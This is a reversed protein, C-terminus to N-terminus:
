KRMLHVLEIGTPITKASALSKFGLMPQIRRKVSRHDQEIRNNLYQSARIRIPKLARRSPNRLSLEIDCTWIAEHNAQSDDIVVHDPRGHRAVAKRQFRKAAALDRRESVFLEVTDGIGDGSRYLCMWRGLM